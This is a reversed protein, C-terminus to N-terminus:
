LVTTYHSHPHHLVRFLSVITSAGIPVESRKFTASVPFARSTLDRGPPKARSQILGLAKPTPGTLALRAWSETM